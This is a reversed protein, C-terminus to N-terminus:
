FKHKCNVCVRDVKNTMFGMIPTWKRKVLQINTSGCKPCKITDKASSKQEQEKKIQEQQELQTKFQQIKLQFEIPDTEYLKVMADMFSEDTSIMKIIGGHPIKSKYCKIPSSKDVNEFPCLCEPCEEIKDGNEIKAGCIDCYMVM